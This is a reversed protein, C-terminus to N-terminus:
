RLPRDRLPHATCPVCDPKRRSGRVALIPLATSNPSPSPHPWLVRPQGSPAPEGAPGSVAGEGSSVALSGEEEQGFNFLGPWGAGLGTEWPIGAPGPAPPRAFRPDRYSCARGGWGLM